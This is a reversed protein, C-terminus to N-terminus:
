SAARRIEGALLLIGGVFLLHDWGALMHSGLGRGSQGEETASRM